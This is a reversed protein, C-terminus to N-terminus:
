FLMFYKKTNLYRFLYLKLNNCNLTKLKYNSYKNNILRLWDYSPEIDLQSYYFRGHDKSNTILNKSCGSKM